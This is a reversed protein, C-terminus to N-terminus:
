KFIMVIYYIFNVDIFIIKFNWCMLIEVIFYFFFYLISEFYFIMVRCKIVGYLWFKINAFEWIVYYDIFIVVMRM